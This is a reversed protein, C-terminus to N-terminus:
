LLELILVKNFAAVQFPYHIDFTKTVRILNHHFPPPMASSIPCRGLSGFTPLEFRPPASPNTFISM